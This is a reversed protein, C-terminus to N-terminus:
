NGPVNEPAMFYPLRGAQGLKAYRLAKTTKISSNSACERERSLRSAQGVKNAIPLQKM